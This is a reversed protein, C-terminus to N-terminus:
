RTRASVVNAADVTATISRLLIQVLRDKSIAKSSLWDLSAAELFGVWGRMAIKLTPSPKLIGTDRGIRRVVDARAREVIAQVDPDGSIGGHIIARYSRENDTIWDLHAHLSAAARQAVPLTVDPETVAQLDAAAARVAELYIETKTSFYHYLLPKSVGAASAIDAMTVADWSRTGIIDLCVDLLQARRDDVSLRTRRPVVSNVM